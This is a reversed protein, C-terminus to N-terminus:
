RIANNLKVSAMIETATQQWKEKYRAPCNFNFVYLKGNVVTYLLYNYKSVTPTIGMENEKGNITSVFEFTAHNRGNVPSVETKMFQVSDYLNSISSRYFDKLIEMDRPKWRTTTANVGFDVYRNEDSFMSLPKKYSPYKSALDQDSMPLFNVPILATIGEVMKTKKLKIEQFSFSCIALAIALLCLRINNQNM